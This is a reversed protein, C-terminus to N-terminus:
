QGNDVRDDGAQSRLKDKIIKISAAAYVLTAIRRVFELADGNHKFIVDVTEEIVPWIDVDALACQKLM